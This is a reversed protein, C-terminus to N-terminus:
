LLRVSSSLMIKNDLYSTNLKWIGPGRKLDSSSISLRIISHNSKFSVEISAEEIFGAMNESILFFDIRSAVM